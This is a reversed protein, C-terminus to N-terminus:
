ALNKLKHAYSAPDDEAQVHIEEKQNKVQRIVALAIERETDDVRESDLTQLHSLQTILHEKYYKHSLRFPNHAVSLHKLKPLGKLTKALVYPDSLHNSKLSLFKLRYCNSVPQVSELQNHDLNLSKLNPLHDIHHISTLNNHSLDLTILSYLPVISDINCLQNRSLFLTTLQSLQETQFDAPDFANYGQNNLDLTTVDEIKESETLKM